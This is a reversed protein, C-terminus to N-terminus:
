KGSAVPDLPQDGCVHAMGAPVSLQSALRRKGHGHPHMTLYAVPSPRRVDIVHRGVPDGAQTVTRGLWKWAYDVLVERMNPMSPFYREDIGRRILIWESKESSAIGLELVLVGNPTLREVLRHM